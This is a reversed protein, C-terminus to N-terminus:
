KLKPSHIHLIRNKELDRLIVFFAKGQTIEVNFTCKRMTACKEHSNQNKIRIFKSNQISAM